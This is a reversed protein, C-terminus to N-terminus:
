ICKRRAFDHETKLLLEHIAQKNMEYDPFLARLRLCDDEINAEYSASEASTSPSIFRCEGALTRLREQIELPVGPIDEASAVIESLIFKLNRKGAKTQQQDRWVQSTKESASRSSAMSILLGFLIIIQISLQWKFELYHGQSTCIVCTIATIMSLTTYWIISLWKIGLGGVLHASPDAHSIPPNIAILAWLWYVISVVFLDLWMVEKEGFIDAPIILLFISLILIQGLLSLIIALTRSKM